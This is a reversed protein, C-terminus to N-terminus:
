QNSHGVSYFDVLNIDFVLTSYAPIATQETAGYGLESPIYIRWIDGNTLTTGKAMETVATVWGRVCGSLSLSVPVDVAPDLEGVYSQDFIYGEPYTKTPILRGRYNVLVTDNFMPSDAGDGQQLVNCYVYYENSWQVTDVLGYALFVKWEGSVNERAVKAISDIFETNRAQWNDFEGSEETENCAVVGLVILLLMLIKKVDVMKIM